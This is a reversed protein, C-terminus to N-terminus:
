ILGRKYTYEILTVGEIEKYKILNTGILFSRGDVDEGLYKGTFIDASDTTVKYTNGIKM